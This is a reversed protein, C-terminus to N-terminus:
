AQAEDAPTVGQLQTGPTFWDGRANLVDAVAMAKKGPLQITELVLAGEGTAVAIGQKDARIITGPAQKAAEISM